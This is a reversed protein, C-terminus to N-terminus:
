ETVTIPVFYHLIIDVEKNIQKYWNNYPIILINNLLFNIFNRLQSHKQPRSLTCTM